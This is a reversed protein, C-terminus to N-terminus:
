SNLDLEVADILPKLWVLLAQHKPHQVYADLAAQDKFQMVGGFTYGKGRPSINPGVHTQMLGPIVGQFSLIEKRAREKQAASVGENWIFAFIHFVSSDNSAASATQPTMSLLTIAGAALGSQRLMGRRTMKPM